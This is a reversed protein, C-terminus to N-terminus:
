ASELRDEASYAGSFSWILHKLANFDICVQRISRIPSKVPAICEPDRPAVRESTPDASDVIPNLM